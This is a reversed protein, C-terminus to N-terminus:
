VRANLDQTETNTGTKVEHVINAIGVTNSLMVNTCRMSTSAPPAPSSGPEADRLPRASIGQHFTGPLAPSSGQVVTRTTSPGELKRPRFCQFFGSLANLIVGGGSSTFPRSPTILGSRAFHESKFLVSGVDTGGAGGSAVRAM